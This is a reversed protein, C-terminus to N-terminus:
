RARLGGRLRGGGGVGGFPPRYGVTVAADERHVRGQVVHGDPPGLRLPVGEGGLGRTEGRDDAQGLRLDHVSPGLPARVEEVEGLSDPGLGRPRDLFALVRPGERADDDLLHGAPEIGLLAEGGMEDAEDAVAVRAQGADLLAAVVLEEPRAPGEHERDVGVDLVGELLDGALGHRRRSGLGDHEEGRVRPRALYEGIDGNRIEIGVVVGRRRGIGPVIPRADVVVLRARDEFDEGHGRHEVQAARVRAGDEVAVAGVM